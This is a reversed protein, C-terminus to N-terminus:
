HVHFQIECGDEVNADVGVDRDYFLPVVFWGEGYKIRSRYLGLWLRDINVSNVRAFVPHVRQAFVPYGDLAM